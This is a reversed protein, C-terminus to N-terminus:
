DIKRIVQKNFDPAKLDNLEVEREKLLEENSKLFEELVILYNSELENKESLKKMALFVDLCTRNFLDGKSFREITQMSWYDVNGKFLFYDFCFNLFSDMMNSEEEFVNYKFYELGLGLNVSGIMRAICAYCRGCNIGWRGSICSHTVALISDNALHKMMETKTFDEFPTIIEIERDLIIEGINKAYSLVYPNTTYTITDMPAFKPQYMTSGCESIIIRKSKCFYGLITAYLVYLFGRLQSYGKGMAPAIMKIVAIELPNLLKETLDNVKKTIKGLDGHSVYLGLISDYNEASKLIGMTSDIGGSFLCITEYAEFGFNLRTKKGIKKVFKFSIKECLVDLVLKELFFTINQIKEENLDMFYSIEVM